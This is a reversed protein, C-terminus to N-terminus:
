GLVGCLELWGPDVVYGYGYYGRSLLIWAGGTFRLQM